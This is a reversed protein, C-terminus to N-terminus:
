TMKEIMIRGDIYRIIGFFLIFVLTSYFAQFLGTRSLTVAVVICLIFFSPNIKSHFSQDEGDSDKELLIMAFWSLMKPITKKVFLSSGVQYVFTSKENNYGTSVSNYLTISGITPWFLLIYKNVWNEKAVKYHLHYIIADFVWYASALYIAIKTLMDNEFGM